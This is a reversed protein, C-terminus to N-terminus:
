YVATVSPPRGRVAGPAVENPDRGAPQEYQKKSGKFPLRGHHKSGTSANSLVAGKKVSSSQSGSHKKISSTPTETKSGKGYRPQQLSPSSQPLDRSSDPPRHDKKDRGRIKDFISRKVGSGLTLPSKQSMISSHASPTPSSPRPPQVLTTKSSMASPFASPFDPRRFSATSDERSM